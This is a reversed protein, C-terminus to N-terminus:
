VPVNDMTLVTDETIIESVDDVKAYTGLMSATDVEKTAINRYKMVQM